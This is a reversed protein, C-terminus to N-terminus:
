AYACIDHVCVDLCAHRGGYRAVRTGSQPALCVMGNRPMRDIAIHVASSGEGRGGSRKEVGTKDGGTADEDEERGEREAFNGSANRRISNWLKEGGSKVRRLGGGVAEGVGGVVAPVRPACMGSRDRVVVTEVGANKDECTMNRGPPAAFAYRADAWLKVKVRVVGTDTCPKVVHDKMEDYVTAPKGRLAEKQKDCSTMEVGRGGGDRTVQRRACLRRWLRGPSLWRPLQLLAMRGRTIAAGVDLSRWWEPLGRERPVVVLVQMGHLKILAELALRLRVKDNEKIVRPRRSAAGFLKPQIVGLGGGGAGRGAASAPPAHKKLLGRAELGAAEREDERMMALVHRAEATVSTWMSGWGEAGGEGHEVTAPKYKEELDRLMALYASADVPKGVVGGAAPVAASSTNEGGDASNDRASAFLRRREERDVLADAQLSREVMEARTGSLSGDEGRCTTAPSAASSSAAPVGHRRRERLADIGTHSPPDLMVVAHVRPAVDGPPASAAADAEDHPNGYEPQAADAARDTANTTNAGANRERLTTALLSLGHRLAAVAGVEHGVLVLKSKDVSPFCTLWELAASVDSAVSAMSFTDASGSGRHHLVLCHIGADRLAVAFDECADIPPVSQLLLAAPARPEGRLLTPIHLRGVLPEEAGVPVHVSVVDAPAAVLPWGPTEVSLPLSVVLLALVAFAGRGGINDALMPRVCVQGQAFPAFSRGSPQFKWGDIWGPFACRIVFPIAPTALLRCVTAAQRGANLSRTHM